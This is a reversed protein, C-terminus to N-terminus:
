YVLESKDLAVPRVALLPQDGDESFVLVNLQDHAITLRCFVSKGAFEAPCTEIDAHPVTNEFLEYTMMLGGGDAQAPDASVAFAGGVMFALTLPMLKIRM